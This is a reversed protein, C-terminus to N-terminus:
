PHATDTVVRFFGVSKDSVSVSLACQYTWHWQPNPCLSVSGIPTCQADSDTHLLPETIECRGERSEDNFLNSIPSFLFNLPLINDEMWWYKYANKIQQLFEILKESCFHNSIWYTSKVFVHSAIISMYEEKNTKRLVTRRL